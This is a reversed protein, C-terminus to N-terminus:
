SPRTVARTNERLPVVTGVTSAVVHCPRLDRYTSLFDCRALRVAPVLACAIATGSTPAADKILLLVGVLYSLRLM